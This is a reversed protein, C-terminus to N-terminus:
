RGTVFFAAGGQGAVVDGDSAGVRVVGEDGGEQGEWGQDGSGCGAHGSASFGGHLLWEILDRSAAEVEDWDEIGIALNIREVCANPDM